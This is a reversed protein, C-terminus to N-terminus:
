TAKQKPNVIAPNTKTQNKTESKPNIQPQIKNLQSGVINHSPQIKNKLHTEAQNPNTTPASFDFEPNPNALNTHTRNVTTAM